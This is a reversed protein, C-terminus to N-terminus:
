PARRVAKWLAVNYLVWTGKIQSGRGQAIGARLKCKQEYRKSSFHVRSM